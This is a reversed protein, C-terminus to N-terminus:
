GSRKEKGTGIQVIFTAALAVAVLAIVLVTM